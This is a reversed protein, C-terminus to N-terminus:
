LTGSVLTRKRAPYSDRMMRIVGPDALDLCIGDKATEIAIEGSGGQDGTKGHQATDQPTQPASHPTRHPTRHPTAITPTQTAKAFAEDTGMAYHKFAIKPSNGLWTTVDKAPFRGLLETERTARLNQLLKPWPTLKAKEIM